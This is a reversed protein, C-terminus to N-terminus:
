EPQRSSVRPDDASEKGAEILTERLVYAGALTLGSAVLTKWRAHAPVLNLLTPV